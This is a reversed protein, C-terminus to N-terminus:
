RNELGGREVLEAVGGFNMQGNYSVALDSQREIESSHCNRVVRWQWEVWLLARCRRFLLDRGDLPQALHGSCSTMELHKHCISSYQLPLGAIFDFVRMRDLLVAANDNRSRKALRKADAYSVFHDQSDYAVFQADCRQPPAQLSRLAQDALM